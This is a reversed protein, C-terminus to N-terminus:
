LSALFARPFPNNKKVLVQFGVGLVQIGKVITTEM